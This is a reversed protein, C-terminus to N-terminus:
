SLGARQFEVLLHEKSVGVDLHDWPFIEQLSRRRYVYFDPNLNWELFAKKWQGKLRHTLLLLGGLRRDGRALLAQVYGWQPLDSFCDINGVGKLIKTVRKIKQQLKTVEDFGLWQFATWPKPVFVNLSVTIRGLRRSDKAAALMLHRVRKAMEAIGQVEEESESPFGVLFYLKINPIQHAIIREVTEFFERDSIQKGLLARLRESAAEPALTVTKQGSRALCRLLGDSVSGARLSSASILYGRELLDECLSDIQPHDSICAGVLGVREPRPGIEQLSALLAEKSRFRFPRYIGGALCFRCGGKCGRNIELLRMDGFETNPTEIFNWIPYEDLRPISHKKLRAPASSRVEMGEITGEKGYSFRYLQPIYAGEWRTAERLFAEKGGGEGALDGYLEVLQPFLDEGEGLFFLDVFDTLPEPNSFACIGGMVVLPDRSTRQESLLPVRALDLIKLLNLYDNEYSVSFALIDFSALPRGSELTSLPTATREYEPLDEPDPLFSRECLIKRNRNLYHYMALFGLNSMGVRYTHPYILAVSVKGGPAKCITGREEALLKKAKERLKRSM